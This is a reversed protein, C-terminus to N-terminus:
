PALLVLTTLFTAEVSDHRRAWRYVGVVALGLLLPAGIRGFVGMTTASGGSALLDQLWVPMTGVHGAFMLVIGGTSPGM